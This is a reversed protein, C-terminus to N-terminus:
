ISSIKKKLAVFANQMWDLKLKLQRKMENLGVEKRLDGIEEDILLRAPKVAM